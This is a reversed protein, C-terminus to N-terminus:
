LEDCSGASTFSIIHYTIGQPTRYPRHYSRGDAPRCSLNSFLLHILLCLVHHQPDSEQIPILTVIRLPTVMPLPLVTQAPATTEFDVGGYLM